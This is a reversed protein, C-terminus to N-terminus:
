IFPKVKQRGTRSPSPAALNEVVKRRRSKSTSPAALPPPLWNPLSPLSSDATSAATQRRTRKMPPSRSKPSKIKMVGKNVATYTRKCVRIRCKKGWKKNLCPPCEQCPLAKCGECEKCGKRNSTTLKVETTENANRMEESGESVTNNTSRIKVVQVNDSVTEEPAAYIEGGGVRSRSVGEGGHVEDGTVLQGSGDDRRHGHVEHHTMEEWQVNGLVAEEVRVTDETYGTCTRRECKKRWSKNRCPPCDQCPKTSCGLCQRCGQRSRIKQVQVRSIEVESDGTSRAASLSETVSNVLNFRSGAKLRKKAGKKAGTAPKRLNLEAYDGPRPPKRGSIQKLDKQKAQLKTLNVESKKKKPLVEIGMKRGASILHPCWKSQTTRGCMSCENLEPRISITM